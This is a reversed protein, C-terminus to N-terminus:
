VTKCIREQTTNYKLDIIQVYCVSHKHITHHNVHIPRIHRELCLKDKSVINRITVLRNRIYGNVICGMVIM